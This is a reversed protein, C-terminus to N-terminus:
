RTGPSPKAYPSITRDLHVGHGRAGVLKGDRVVVSGRVMTLVPWGKLEIGEYPTYDSGDGLMAHTLTQVKHPDWIAIDADAGVAITGKRPYIGYTRAPNTATM